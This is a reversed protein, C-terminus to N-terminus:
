KGAAIIRLRLAAGQQPAESEGMFSMALQREDPDDDVRFCGLLGGEEGPSALDPQRRILSGRRVRRPMFSM